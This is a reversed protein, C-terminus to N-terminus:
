RGGEVVDLPRQVEVITRFARLNTTSVTFKGANTAVEYRWGLITSKVRQVIATRLHGGDDATLLAAEGVQYDPMGFRLRGTTHKRQM